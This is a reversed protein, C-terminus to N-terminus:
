SFIHLNMDHNCSASCFITSQCTPFNRRKQYCFNVQLRLTSSFITDPQPPTSTDGSVINIERTHSATHLLCTCGCECPASGYVPTPRAPPRPEQQPSTLATPPATACPAPGGCAATDVRAGRCYFTDRTCFRRLLRISITPPSSGGFDGTDAGCGTVAAPSAAPPGPAGGLGRRAPKTVQLVVSENM